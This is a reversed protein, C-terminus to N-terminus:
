TEMAVHLLCRCRLSIDVWLRTSMPFKPPPPPPYIHNGWYIRFLMSVRTQPCVNFNRGWDFLLLSCCEWDGLTQGSHSSCIRRSSFGFTHLRSAFCRPLRLPASAGATRLGGWIFRAGTDSRRGEYRYCLMVFRAQCNTDIM